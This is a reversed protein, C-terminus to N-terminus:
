KREQLLRVFLCLSLHVHVCVCVCMYHIFPFPVSILMSGTGVGYLYLISQFIKWIAMDMDELHVCVCVCMCAYVLFSISRHDPYCLPEALYDYGIFFTQLAMQVFINKTRYFNSFKEKFTELFKKKCFLCFQPVASLIIIGHYHIMDYPYSINTEEFLCVPCITKNGFHSFGPNCSIIIQSENKLFLTLPNDTSKLM